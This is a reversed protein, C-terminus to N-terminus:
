IAIGMYLGKCKDTYWVGETIGNENFKCLFYHIRDRWVSKKSNSIALLDGYILYINNIKDINFHPDSLLIHKDTIINRDKITHIFTGITHEKCYKLSVGKKIPRAQYYTGKWTILELNAYSFKPLFILFFLIWTRKM